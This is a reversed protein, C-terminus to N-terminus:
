ENPGNIKQWVVKIDGVSYMFSGISRKFRPTNGSAVGHDVYM